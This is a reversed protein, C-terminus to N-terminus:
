PSNGGEDRKAPNLCDWGCCDGFPTDFVATKAAIFSMRNISIPTRLPLGKLSLEFVKKEFIDLLRCTQCVM